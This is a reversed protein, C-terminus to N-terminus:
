AIETISIDVAHLAFLTDVGYSPGTISTINQITIGTTAVERSASLSMARSSAGDYTEGRSTLSSRRDDSAVNAIDKIAVSNLAVHKAGDIKVGVVGKVFHFMADHRGIVELDDGLVSLDGDLLFSSSKAGDSFQKNMSTRKLWNMTRNDFTCEKYYYDVVALQVEHLANLAKNKLAHEFDFVGGVSDRMHGGSYGDSESSRVLTAVEVPSGTLQSVTVDTMVIGDSYDDQPFDEIFSGVHVFPHVIIGALLSGDPLGNVNDSFLPDNNTAGSSIFDAIHTRLNGMKMELSKSDCQDNLDVNRMIGQLLFISQSLRTNGPITMLNSHVHVNRIKLNKAGNLSIGAVEFDLIELDQLVVGANNNGHIGHHSSRGIKGNKVTVGKSTKFDLGFNAPGAGAPFPANSLEIVSFFRQTISHEVSQEITFGNLDLIVGEAQIVIAAFFGLIYGSEKYSSSFQGSQLTPSDRHMYFEPLAPNLIDKPQFIINEILKYVGPKSIVYTGGDFDSQVMDTVTPSIQKCEYLKTYRSSRRTRCKGDSHTLYNFYSTCGTFYGMSFYSCTTQRENAADICSQRCKEFDNRYRWDVNASWTICERADVESEIECGSSSSSSGMSAKFDDTFWWWNATWHDVSRKFTQCEVSSFAAILVLAQLLIM